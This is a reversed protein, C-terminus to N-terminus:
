QGQAQQVQAQLLALVQEILSALQAKIAAIQTQTAASTSAGLVQGASPAQAVLGNLESRTLPGVIGVQELGHKAQFAKVAAQTLQGFYGTIPGSYVGASTLANQLQTVEDGQSGISLTQTFRFISAGLVQGVPATVAPTVATTAALSPVYYGGGGGGSTVVPAPIATQTYTVFNTFHKTWIVLDAGGNVNIKCDSAFTTGGNVTTTASDTDCVDTIQHFVGAQSWGVYKGGQGAIMIRVARDFTLPIDNSGIEIVSSVSANNGSDPTVTVTSNDKVQPVNIIGTWGSAGTIKIGAPIQVNVDGITTSANVNIAGPLTVSDDITDLLASTNLTANNVGSPVNVTSTSSTANNGVIIEPADTNVDTDAALGGSFPVYAADTSTPVMMAAIETSSVTGWYNNKANLIGSGSTNFAVAANANGFINNGGSVSINEGDLPQNIYIGYANDSVVNNTVAIDHSDPRVTVSPQSNDFAIGAGASYESVNNGTIPTNYFQGGIGASGLDQSFATGVVDNESILSDGLYGTIGYRANEVKNHSITAQTLVGDTTSTTGNDDGGTIGSTLAGKVWNYEVDGKEARWLNIGDTSAAEIINNKVVVNDTVGNVHIAKVPSGGITFGDITVTGTVPGIQVSGNPNSSSIISEDGGRTRADVGHQVGYLTLPRDIIVPGNYQGGEVNVTGGPVTMDIAHQITAYPQAQTGPGSDSGGVAVYIPKPAPNSDTFASSTASVETGNNTSWITYDNGAGLWDSYYNGSFAYGSTLTDLVLTNAGGTIPSEFFNGSITSTAISSDSVAYFNYANGYVENNSVSVNYSDAQTSTSYPNQFAIGAGQAYGYVTNGTISTDYFNGGIGSGQALSSDGVVTNGSITSSAAYGTIGYLSDEVKNNTVSAQTVIKPDVGSNGMTIGSVGAGMVLNNSVTGGEAMYLNIGDVTAPAIINNLVNVQMSTGNVHIAKYPPTSTSGITFGDITVTGDVPGVQITGPEVSSLIVSEGTGRASSTAYVGHQAGNLILPKDIQVPGTYTGAVVTVTGNDAVASVADQINSFANVGYYYPIGGGLSVTDYQAPTDKGVWSGNVIITSTSAKSALTVGDITVSMADSNDQTFLPFADSPNKHDVLGGITNNTLVANPTDGELGIAHAWLGELTGITNDTIQLGTTKHNVLIGYAGAGGGYTPYGHWTVISAYIDHMTNGSITTSSITYSGSSNGLYVGKASSGASGAHAMGTNGINSITNGTVTINSVDKASSVINIASASGSNYSSASGIDHITNNTITLNSDDKAVIGSGASPNSIDIGNITVNDSTITIKGILSSVTGTAELTISQIITLDGTYTGSAYVIGGVNASDNLATQLDSINGTEVVVDAAKAVNGIFLFGCVLFAATAFIVVKTVKDGTLEITRM